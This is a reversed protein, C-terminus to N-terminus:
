GHAALGRWREDHSDSLHRLIVMLWATAPGPPRLLGTGAERRGLAAVAWHLQYRFARALWSRLAVGSWDDQGLYGELAPPLAGLPLKAFDMAPDAWAADGWDVIGTLQGTAPDALLNRPAIDGHILVLPPRDPVCPALREFWSRLWGATDADLAQEHVLPGLLDCPDLRDDDTPVGDLSPRDVGGALHLAALNHGVARYVAALQDQPLEQRALDTGAVRRVVLYPADIDRGTDDFAVIEPTLVGAARAVPIVVCEKRLDAALQGDDRPIRLVLDDGLRFAHNAEGDPLPQIGSFGVGFRDGITALTAPDPPAIIPM